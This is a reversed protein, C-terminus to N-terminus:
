RERSNILVRGVLGDYSNMVESTTPHTKSSFQYAKKIIQRALAFEMTYRDSSASDIDM